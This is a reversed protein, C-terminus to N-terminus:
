RLPWTPSMVMSASWPDRAPWAPRMSAVTMAVSPSLGLRNPRRTGPWSRGPVPKRPMSRRRTAGPANPRNRGSRAGREQIPTPIGRRNLACPQITSKGTATGPHLPTSSRVMPSFTATGISIRSWIGPRKRRARAWSSRCGRRSWIGPRKRRAPGRHVVAGVRRAGQPEIGVADPM